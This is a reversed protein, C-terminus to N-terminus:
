RVRAEVALPAGRYPSPRNPRPALAAAAAAREQRLAQARLALLMASPFWGYRVFLIPEGMAFLLFAVVSSFLATVLSRSSRPADRVIRVGTRVVGVVLLCVGAVGLLGASFWPNLIINHVALESHLAQQSSEPDLGVGVFPQREIRDWAAGYVDLRSYLTGGQNEPVDQSTVSVVRKLPSPANTYGVASMLWVGSLGAVAFIVLTRATVGRLALWVTTSVVAALFGGVSGSLLMGAVLMMLCSLAVLRLSRRRSDTALMLAPVFAIAALGGLSNFHPTFGTM